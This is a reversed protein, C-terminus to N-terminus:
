REVETDVEARTALGVHVGMHDYVRSPLLLGNPMSPKRDLRFFLDVRRKTTVRVRAFTRRPTVLSVYAKRAQVAVM